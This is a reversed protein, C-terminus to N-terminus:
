RTKPKKKQKKIKKNNNFIHPYKYTELLELFDNTVCRCRFQFYGNNKSMFGRGGWFFYVYM